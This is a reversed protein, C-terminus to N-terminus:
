LYMYIHSVQDGTQRQTAKTTTSQSELSTPLKDIVVSVYMYIHSVQDGTQRQTSKSTPSQSELSTPLKDIVVSVEVTKRSPSKVTTFSVDTKKKRGPSKKVTSESKQENIITDKSPSKEIEEEKKDEITKNGKRRGPSKLRDVSLEEPLTLEEQETDVNLSKVNKRHGPSKPIEIEEINKQNKRRGPSKAIEIEAVNKVNIRRGPSKSTEIEEITKTSKRRGPSKPTEVEGVNKMSKRHGPSKTTEIEEINKTSKRCGPSKITEIEEVNKISKRRGPSKTTEIEEVNMLNKRRSPSKPTEIEDVNKLSKRRDPSKVVEGDEINRLGKRRSPSSSIEKNSQINKKNRRGPSKNLNVNDILEEKFLDKRIKPSKPLEKEIEVKKKRGPSKKSSLTKETDELKAMSSLRRSSRRLEYENIETPMSSRRTVPKHVPSIKYASRREKVSSTDLTEEEQLEVEFLPPLQKNEFDSKAIEILSPLGPEEVLAQQKSESEDSLESSDIQEPTKVDNENEKNVNSEIVNDTTNSQLPSKEIDNTVSDVSKSYNKIIAAESKSRLIIEDGPSVDGEHGSSVHEDIEGRALVHENSEGRASVQEDIMQDCEREMDENDDSIELHYDQDDQTTTVNEKLKEDDDEEECSNGVVIDEGSSFNVDEKDSSSDPLVFSILKKERQRVKNFLTKPKLSYEAVDFNEVQEPQSFAFIRDEIENIKEDLDEEEACSSTNEENISEDHELIGDFSVHRKMENENDKVDVDEEDTDDIEVIESGIEMPQSPAHIEDPMTFQSPFMGQQSLRTLKVTPSRPTMSTKLPSHKLKVPSTKRLVSIQAHAAQGDEIEQTEM